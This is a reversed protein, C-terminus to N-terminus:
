AKILLLYDCFLLLLYQNGRMKGAKGQSDRAIVATCNLCTSFARLHKLMYMEYMAVALGPDLLAAVVGRGEARPKRFVM